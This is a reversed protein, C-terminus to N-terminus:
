SGEAEAGARRAPGYVLDALAPDRSRLEDITGHVVHADAARDAELVENTRVEELEVRKEAIRTQERAQEIKQSQRDKQRVGNDRWALYLGLTAITTIVVLIVQMWKNNAVFDFFKFLGAAIM